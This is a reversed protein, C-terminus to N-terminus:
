NDGTAGIQYWKGSDGTSCVRVTDGAGLVVDAAGASVFNANNDLTIANAGVNIVDMCCGANATAPATFTNTTNTTVAGAATIQKVGGCADATITNTAAITQASPPTVITQAFTQIGTFSQAADTRALTATTTPYTYIANATLNLCVRTSGDGICLMDTDSEWHAAGETTVTATSSNVLWPVSSTASSMDLAAIPISSKWEPATAGSNMGLMYNASGKSLVAAEGPGTFYPIAGEASVLGALATINAISALAALTTLDADLPQLITTWAAGNITPANNIDLNDFWGKTLPTGEAGLTSTWGPTDTAVHLVQYATGIALNDSTSSGTGVVLDGKATFIPDKSVNGTGGGYIGGPGLPQAVAISAYFLIMIVMFLKKM